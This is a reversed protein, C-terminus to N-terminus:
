QLLAGKGKLIISAEIIELIDDDSVSDIGNKLVVPLALEQITLLNQLDPDVHKILTSLKVTEV